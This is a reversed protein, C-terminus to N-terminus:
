QIMYVAGNSLSTVYLKGDPGTVINTVIGFNKGAVLSDSQGQDFKYDNNDFRDRLKPDSFAFHERSNDFKFEFLYGENLFTRSAGVFLNGAHQPGLASGAFGIGAPAV